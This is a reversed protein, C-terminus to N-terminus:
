TLADERVKAEPWTAACIELVHEVTNQPNLTDFHLVRRGTNGEQSCRESSIQLITPAIMSAELKPDAPTMSSQWFTIGESYQRTPSNGEWVPLNEQNKAEILRRTLANLLTWDVDGLTKHPKYWEANQLNDQFPQQIKFLMNSGCISFIHKGLWNFAESLESVVTQQDKFELHIGGNPVGNLEIYRLILPNGSTGHFPLQVSCACFTNRDPLIFSVKAGDLVQEVKYALHAAFSPLTYSPLIQTTM